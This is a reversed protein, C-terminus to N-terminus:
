SFSNKRVADLRTNLLNEGNLICTVRAKCANCFCKWRGYFINHYAILRSYQVNQSLTRTLLQFIESFSVCFFKLSICIEGRVTSNNLRSFLFVQVKKYSFRDSLFIYTYSKNESYRTKLEIICVCHWRLYGM